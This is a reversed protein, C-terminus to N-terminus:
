RGLLDGSLQGAYALVGVQGASVALIIHRRRGGGLGMEFPDQRQQVGRESDIEVGAAVSRDLSPDRAAHHQVGMFTQRSVGPVQFSVPGLKVGEILVNKYVDGTEEAFRLTKLGQLM